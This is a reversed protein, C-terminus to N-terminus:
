SLVKEGSPTHIVARLAVPGEHITVRDDDTLQSLAWGLAGARPHTLTLSVLRAGVDPLDPAPPASDWAILAPCLGGFPSEGTEALTIRWAYPGRRAAVPRGVGESAAAVAEDLDDVRLAWGVLRPSGSFRDLGFWRPRIPAPAGPEIALTELYDAAGLSLLRNHTGMTPHSGGGGMELGLVGEVHATAADLSEGAVVLHDLVGSM